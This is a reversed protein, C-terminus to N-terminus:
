TESPFDAFRLNSSTEATTGNPVNAFSIWPVHKRAYISAGAADVTKDM